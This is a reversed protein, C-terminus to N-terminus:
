PEDSSWGEYRVAWLCLGHPPAVPGAASRKGSRLVGAMDGARRRGLGTDVLTGVISRVMQHCFATAEIEFRMSGGGEDVWRADLVRRRLSTEDGRVKGNRPRRCFAAFDHEGLLPDCALEMVPLDLPEPVHWAFSALFPDAVPRNVIRYRYRRSLASFRADFAGDVVAAARVVVEPGCLGNVARALAGPDARDAPADFTVVQGWAHVGKDTRGACTLGVRYGLVRALVEEVAGAVTRVGRNAAFGHFATGDYALVLRIRVLPGAPPEPEQPLDFLTM